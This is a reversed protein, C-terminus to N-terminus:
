WLELLDEPELEMVVRPRGPSRASTSTRRSTPPLAGTRILEEAAQRSSPLLSWVNSERLWVGGLEGLQYRLNITIGGVLIRGDPANTLSTFRAPVTVSPSRPISSRASAGRVARSGATYTLGAAALTGEPSDMLPVAHRSRRNAYSVSYGCRRLTPYYVFTCKVLTPLADIGVDEEEDDYVFRLRPRRCKPCLGPGGHHQMRTIRLVLEPKSGEKVVSNASCLAKLQPLKKKLRQLGTQLNLSATMPRASTMTTKM